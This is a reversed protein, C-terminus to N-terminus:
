SAITGKEDAEARQFFDLLDASFEEPATESPAHGARYSHMEAGIRKAFARHHRLAWLDESGAATMIPIKSKRLEADFNPVHRMADIADHVSQPVTYRLRYRVFKARNPDVRNINAHLGILLGTSGVKSPVAWALPGVVRMKRFGDGSTPPTSQLSMSRILEPNDVAIKQVLVASFSYGVVHAPGLHRLIAEIDAIHMAPSWKGSADPGAPYSEYQGALDISWARYGSAGLIPGVRSFDEKSGTIGPIMLVPIGDPDGWCAIAIPGSPADFTGRETGPPLVRWDFNAHGSKHLM